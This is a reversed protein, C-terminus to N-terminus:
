LERKRIVAASGVPGAESDSAFMKHSAVPVEGQDIIDRCADISFMGARGRQSGSCRSLGCCLVRIGEDSGCRCSRTPAQMKAHHVIRASRPLTWCVSSRRTCAPRCTEATFLQATLPVREGKCVSLSIVNSSVQRCRRPPGVVGALPSSRVLRSAEWVMEHSQFGLGAYSLEQISRFVSFPM